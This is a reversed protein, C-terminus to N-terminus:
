SSLLELLPTNLYYREKGARETRLLGIKELQQLYKSVTERHGLGAEVEPPTYMVEGGASRLQTGPTRRVDIDVARITRVIEVMTNVSLPRAKLSEFANWLAERYRLVEKAEASAGKVDDLARYLDDTTTVINEIESSLRAEQVVISNFLIRQDPIVHGAGKLEALARSAAIAKKLVASTEITASPPLLPLDNFPRRRDFAM